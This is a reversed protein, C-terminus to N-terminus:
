LNITKLIKSSSFNTILPCVVKLQANITKAQKLKNKMQPDNECVAIIKPKILKVLSFYDEDKALFPLKIVLDVVQMQSLIEARQQQNHIPNRKKVKKIFKDSELAVILFNGSEKAKKLFFLHGYHFLDFCGGVLVVNKKDFEKKLKKFQSLTIIKKM